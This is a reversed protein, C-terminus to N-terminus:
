PAGKVCPTSPLVCEPVSAVVGSVCPTESMCPTARVGKVACVPVIVGPIRAVELAGPTEMGGLSRTCGNAASKGEVECPVVSCVQDHDAELSCLTERRERLLSDRQGCRTEVREALEGGNDEVVETHTHADEKVGDKGHLRKEIERTETLETVERRTESTCSETVGILKGGKTVTETVKVRRAWCTERIVRDEGAEVAPRVATASGGWSPRGLVHRRWKRARQRRKAACM